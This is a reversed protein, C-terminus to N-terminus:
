LGNLNGLVTALADSWEMTCAREIAAELEASQHHGASGPHHVMHRYFLEGNKEFKLAINRAVIDHPRTGFEYGMVFPSTTATRIHALEGAEPPTIETNEWLESLKPGYEQELALKVQSVIMQNWPAIQARLDSAFALIEEALQGANTSFMGGEGAM